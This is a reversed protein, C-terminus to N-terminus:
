LLRGTTSTWSHVYDKTTSCTLLFLLLSLEMVARAQLALSTKKREGEKGNQEVNQCLKLVLGALRGSPLKLRLSHCTRLASEVVNTKVQQYPECFGQEVALKISCPM